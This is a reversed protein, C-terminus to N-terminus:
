DEPSPRMIPRTRWDFSLALLRFVFTIAIASLAAPVIPAHAYTTVLMFEAVGLFSAIVYFQGPKFLLPEERVLVDRILGSGAANVVGVFICAPIALGAESAKSAGVVGYAATGLADIMLFPRSLREAHPFFFIAALSGAAVMIIYAGNRMAAPPGNQIFVGDRLLGGGLGCALALVFLGILDYHRRIAIMAGTISFLFTAGLDIAIPLALNKAALLEATM